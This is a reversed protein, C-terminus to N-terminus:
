GPLGWCTRSPLPPSLLPPPPFCGAFGLVGFGEADWPPASAPAPVPPAAPAPPEPDPAAEPADAAAAPGAAAATTPTCTALSAAMAPTDSPKHLGYRSSRYSEHGHGILLLLRIALGRSQI